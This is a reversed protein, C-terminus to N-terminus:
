IIARKLGVLSSHKYVASCLDNKGHQRFDKQLPFHGLRDAFAKLDKITQNKTWYNPPKRSLTCKLLRSLSDRGGPYRTIAHRVGSLGRDDLERVTPFRGLEKIIPDLVKIMTPFHSWYHKPLISSGIELAPRSAAHIEQPLKAAIIKEIGITTKHRFNEFTFFLSKLGLRAYLAKKKRLRKYYVAYKPIDPYGLIEIWLDGARFDARFKRGLQILPHVEHAIKHRSLYNDVYCELCSELLHGDNAEYYGKPITNLVRYLWKHGGHSRIACLLDGRGALRLDQQSPVRGLDSKIRLVNKLIRAKNWFRNVRRAPKFGMVEAFKNFGGYKTIAAALDIRHLRKLEKQTPLRGRVASLPKLVALITKKNWYGPAQRKTSCNLAKALATRGGPYEYIAHRLGSDGKQDLERDTPFRGLANIFVALRNLILGNTWYGRTDSKM